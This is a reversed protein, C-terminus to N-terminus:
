LTKVAHYTYVPRTRPLLDNTLTLVSDSFVGVENVHCSSTCTGFSGVTISDNAVRYDDHLTESRESTSGGFNASYDRYHNVRLVHGANDLYLMGSLVTSGADIGMFTVPLPQGDIATLVYTRLIPGTSDHCASVAVSVVLVATLSSLRM